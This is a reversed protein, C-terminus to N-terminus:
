KTKSLIKLHLEILQNVDVTTPADSMLDQANQTKPFAIVDRIATSNCLLMAIRDLGLALGGHPPTGYELAELFFGFKRQADEKSLGLVKFIQQQLDHEHIRISGGGIEFGNLVLDYAQARVSSLNKGSMVAATDDKHPHTFPHHVAAYSHTEMNMEFMPFEEIWLFSYPHKPKLQLKEILHTKLGELSARVISTQDAVMVGFDGDQLDYVGAINQMEAPSLFKEISSSVKGGLKKFWVMGKAGFQKAKDILQDTQSRSMEGANSIKFGRIEGANALTSKFVNFQTEKLVHSFNLFMIGWRLDPKDSAYKEQAEAYSMRPFPTKIEINLVDKWIAVMLEEMLDQILKPTAFSMELDLQTFEPQRDARLDEDRFCRVIQFYRDYGAIMLIQKYLQPSQPLAFFQGPHVRSPVLYDRAGEPTSKTLIPTEIEMFNKKDFYNRITQNMRHRVMLNNQLPRRRLDLYRYKLRTVESADVDDEIMFPLPKSKSLIELEEVMVEIEGTKMKSNIMEKPRDIVKGSISIVFESRLEQALEHAKSHQQPNFVIQTVGYRDRLDVFILGGHDRRTQVWGKLIIKQDLNKQNLEGCTHSRFAHNM